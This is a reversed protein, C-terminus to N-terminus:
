HRGRIEWCVLKRYRAFGIPQDMMLGTGGRSLRYGGTIYKALSYYQMCHRRTDVMVTMGYPM